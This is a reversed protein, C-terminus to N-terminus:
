QVVTLRRTDAFAEGTVRVFYTGSSLGAQSANLRFRRANQAPLSGHHLTTVRRGLVDYVAVTVNQRERVALEITARRQVPNPYTTVDYAEELRIEASATRSTFANKAGETQARLRFQHTGVSLNEGRGPLGQARVPELTDSTRDPILRPGNELTHSRGRKRARLLFLSPTCSHHAGTPLTM